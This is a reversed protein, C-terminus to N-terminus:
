DRGTDGAQVIIIKRVIHVSSDKSGRPEVVGKCVIPLERGGAKSLAKESIEVGYMKRIIPSAGKKGHSLCVPSSSISIEQELVCVRGRVGAYVSKM